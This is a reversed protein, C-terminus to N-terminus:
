NVSAPSAAAKGQGGSQKQLYATLNSQQLSKLEICANVQDKANQLLRETGPLHQASLFQQSDDRLKADCFVGGVEVLGSGLSSDVKEMIQKFDAKFLDWAADQTRYNQFLVGMYYLDQNKVAPSLMFDFTRKTLAPDPFLGLAGFYSYYEEPTKANKLHEMFQDYLAADGNAAAVALANGALAEDVSQPDRMYADAIARSKAVLEPDRGYLALTGFVDSRLATREPSEGPVPQSGLDAAIPRVFNRVWSEFASREDAAVLTDHLEGIRGLMTAVVARNREGQLNELTALYQSIDLRGVRVMAWADGLFRIREEPSFSTELAASMKDFVQPEYSSRFYGRAGANAYVWDSCGKIEFTQEPATLLVHTADKAGSGRLAVPVQWLEPSAANLRVADAFYRHQSLTVKTRDGSCSSKVSVLPAGPQDVFSAMIKDVPKGSTAAIQNWFDEATANGYAHKELYANVGKQFVDPGVYAEVARLVSAAKGYAIGDFLAAIDAPTEAKQRIPRISAISDTSLSSSTEQIEDLQNRWEPHWAELPKWTMWTAFGENLWIDDWWKMTVLDGFWQHAMEHAIVGAVNERADLSATKEDLLLETERYTIAATNEMAGASFDPFAIMDLKEFPWKTYYYRDYYKLINEAATLAFAGLEKKEPVACVRIPIGDAGGELCQFDGVMMAVLYSSMKPSPSFKLTHKEDGPGPTDSVIHGNSIGTDGKDVILTVRFVAKFAPEDFSPFARRADTSEFQTVAYRRRPTESLYFGRLKDNLIGTFHICIEAPGAPIEKPVTITAQELKENKSVRATQMIGNATVTTAQFDIEASNLVIFSAARKLTVHITEEGTFAAKGLDPSFTLDYSEPVVSDPLRQAGAIGSAALGCIVVLLFRKM